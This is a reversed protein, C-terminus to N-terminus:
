DCVKFKNRRSSILEGEKNLRALEDEITDPTGIGREVALKIIDNIDALKDISNQELEKVLDRLVRAKDRKSKPVIAESKEYDM